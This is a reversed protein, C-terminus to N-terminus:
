LILMKMELIMGVLIVSPVTINDFGNSSAAETITAMLSITLSFIIRHLVSDQFFVPFGAFLVVFAIAFFALSGVRTKSVKERSILNKWKRIGFNMGSLAALPDGITLILVPFYFLAREGSFHYALYSILIGAFFLPSGLTKRNVKHHSELFGMIDTASLFLASQICIAVVYWVSSFHNLFTLCFIGALFHSAMRTWESKVRFFYHVIEGLLLILFFFYTILLYILIDKDVPNTFLYSVGAIGAMAGGTLFSDFRDFMGGQGPLIKSFDKTGFRRKYYSALIDGGFAAASILIGSFLARMASFDVFDRILVATTVATAIGGAFGEWTKNPSIRPVIKKRGALQGMVQGAGDFVLVIVYTFLIYRAPLLVFQLFFLLIIAYIGLSIISLRDGGATIGSKARVYMMELIGIANILIILATFVKKDVLISGIMILVIILYVFYKIWNKKKESDPLKRNILIFGLGGILFLIAVTFLVQSM